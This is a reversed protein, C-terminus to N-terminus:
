KESSCDYIVFNIKDRIKMYLDYEFVMAPTVLYEMQLADFVMEKKNPIEYYFNMISRPLYTSISPRLDLTDNEWLSLPDQVKLNHIILEINNFSKNYLYIFEFDLSIIDGIQIERNSNELEYKDYIMTMFEKETIKEVPEDYMSLKLFLEQSLNGLAWPQTLKCDNFSMKEYNEIFFEENINEIFPKFGFQTKLNSVPIYSTVDDYGEEDRSQRVVMPEEKPLFYFNRIINQVEYLYM